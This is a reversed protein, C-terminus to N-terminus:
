LAKIDSVRGLWRWSVAGTTVAGTTVAGTTVAGTTVTGREGDEPGLVVQWSSEHALWPTHRCCHSPKLQSQLMVM